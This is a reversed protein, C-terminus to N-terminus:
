LSDSVRFTRRCNDDVQQKIARMEIEDTARQSSSALSTYASLNEYCFFIIEHKRDEGVPRAFRVVVLRPELSYGKADLFRKTLDAEKGPEERIISDMNVTDVSHRYDFNGLRIANTIPYKYNDDSTPLFGEQQVIFMQVIHEDGAARVFVYRNGAAINDIAFPVVGLYALTRHVTVSVKPDNSSVFKHGKVTSTLTQSVAATLGWLALVATCRIRIPM